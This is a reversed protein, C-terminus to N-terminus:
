FNSATCSSSALTNYTINPDFASPSQSTTSNSVTVSQLQALSPVTQPISIPASAVPVSPVNLSVPSNAAIQANQLQYQAQAQAQVYALLFPDIQPVSMPIGSPILGANLQQLQTAALGTYSNCYSLNGYAPL